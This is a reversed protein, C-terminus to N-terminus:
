ATNVNTKGWDLWAKRIGDMDGPREVKPPHDVLDSLVLHFSYERDRLRALALPIVVEKDLTLMERYSANRQKSSISSFHGTERRWQSACSAFRRRNVNDTGDGRDSFVHPYVMDVHATHEPTGFYFVPSSPTTSTSEPQPCVTGM